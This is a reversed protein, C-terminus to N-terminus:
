QRRKEKIEMIDKQYCPFCFPRGFGYCCPTKCNVPTVPKPEGENPIQTLMRQSVRMNKQKKKTSKSM